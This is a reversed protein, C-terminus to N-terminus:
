KMEESIELDCRLCRKAELVAKEESLADEVEVFSKIREKGPKRPIEPRGLKEIEEDTLEVPFEVTYVGEGMQRSLRYGSGRFVRMMPYNDPLVYAHFAEHYLRTLMQETVEAFKAENQREALDIEKMAADHERQWVAKRLKAEQEIEAEDYGRRRMEELVGALRDPFGADLM